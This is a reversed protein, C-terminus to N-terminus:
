QSSPQVAKYNAEEQHGRAQWPNYQDYAIMNAMNKGCACVRLSIFNRPSSFIINQCIKKSSFPCVGSLMSNRLALVNKSVWFHTKSGAPCVGPQMPYTSRSFPKRQCWFHTKSASPCVGPQMPYASRSFPKKKSGFM